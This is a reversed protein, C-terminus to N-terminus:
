AAKSNAAHYNTDVNIALYRATHRDWVLLPIIGNNVQAVISSAAAIAVPDGLCLLKDLVTFDRLKAWLQQLAHSPELLVPGARLLIELDGYERAASLDFAPLLEHTVKHRRMPSQVIYVKSM